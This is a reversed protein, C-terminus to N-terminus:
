RPARNFLLTWCRQGGPVLEIYCLWRTFPLAWRSIMYVQKCRPCTVSGRYPDDSM